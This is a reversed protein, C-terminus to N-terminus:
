NSQKIAYFPSKALELIGALAKERILKAAVDGHWDFSVEPKNLLSDALGTKIAIDFIKDLQRNGLREFIQRARYSRKLEQGLKHRWEREYRALNDASLDDEELACHLVDVAIEACLLGYYIGGGTLPKVQGAASGVVIFRKGYTRALPKLPIGRVSVEAADPKIKKQGALKVILASLYAKANRRSLLGVLATKKSIPVLWAFFGPAIEREFYVGIEDIGNTNVAAQAGMVFDGAKGVGLKEGIGSGFGGADVTVKAEITQDRVSGSATIVVGDNRININTVRNGCLYEVGAAQARRAMALDLAGRDVVCAQADPRRLELLKGAPSILLVSNIYRLIIGDSIGFTNVCERSIIGTCCVPEGIESKKEIVTVRHGAGALRCALYSGVVGGGIIVVDPVDRRQFCVLVELM